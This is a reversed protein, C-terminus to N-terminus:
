RAGTLPDLLRGPKRLDLRSVTGVVPVGLFRTVQDRRYVRRDFFEALAAWTIAFFGSLVAAIVILYMKRIGAPRIPDMPHQIIKVSSVRKNQMSSTASAEELEQRYLKYNAELLESRRILDNWATKHEHLKELEMQVDRFAAENGRLESSKDAATSVINSELLNLTKVFRQRNEKVSRLDRGGAAMELSIRENEIAALETMLNSAFSREPFSGLSAFSVNDSKHVAKLTELKDKLAKLEHRDSKIEAELQKQRELLLKEQVSYNVINQEAELRRIEDEVTRLEKLTMEMKNRFVDIAADEQFYTMRADLYEDLIADLVAATGERHPLRLIAVIVNSEQSSGVLLARSLTDIVADRQNVRERLGIRILLENFWQKVEFWWQKIDYVFGAFIGQPRPKKEMEELNLRDVVRELVDSSSLIHVETAVDQHRYGVVPTQRNMVTVSSAQEYGIRVLVKATAEYIDTRIFFIWVITIIMSLSFIVTMGRLRRFFIAIVDRLSVEQQVTDFTASQPVQTDM